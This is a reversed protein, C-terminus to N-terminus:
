YGMYDLIYELPTPVYIIDGPTLLFEAPKQNFYAIVWWMEPDDYYESALKEFRDGIKWVRTITVLNSIQSPTPYTMEPSNYHRIYLRGIKRLTDHYVQNRNNKLKRKQLRSILAM